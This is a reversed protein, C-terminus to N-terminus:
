TIIEGWAGLDRHFDNLSPQNRMFECSKELMLGWICAKLWRMIMHMRNSKKVVCTKRGFNKPSKPRNATLGRGKTVCNWASTQKKHQQCLLFGAMLLLGMKRLCSFHTKQQHPSSRAMRCKLFFASHCPRWQIALGSEILM